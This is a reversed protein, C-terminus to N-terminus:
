EVITLESSDIKREQWYSIAFNVTFRFTASPILALLFYGFFFSNGSISFHNQFFVTFLLSGLIIAILWMFKIPFNSFFLNELFKAVVFAGLFSVMSYVFLIRFIEGLRKPDLFTLFASILVSSFIIAVWIAIFDITFIFKFIKNAKMFM